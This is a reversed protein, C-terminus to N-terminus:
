WSAPAGPQRWSDARSPGRTAAYFVGVIAFFAGAALVGWLPSPPKDGAPAPATAGGFCGQIPRPEDGEREVLVQRVNNGSGDDDGYTVRDPM